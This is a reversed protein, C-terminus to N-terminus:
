EFKPTLSRQCNLLSDKVLIHVNWHPHFSFFSARFFINWIDARCLFCIPQINFPYFSLKYHLWVSCNCSFRHWPQTMLRPFHSPQLDFPGHLPDTTGPTITGSTVPQVIMNIRGSKVPKETKRCYNLLMHGKWNKM